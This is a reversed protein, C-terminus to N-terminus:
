HRTDQKYEEIGEWVDYAAFVVTLGKAALMLGRNVAASRTAQQAVDQARGIQRNLKAIKSSSIKRALQMSLADIQRNAAVILESQQTLREAAHDGVKDKVRGAAEKALNKSLDFAIVKADGAGAMEKGADKLIGYSLSVVGAATITATAAGAVVLGAPIVAVAVTSGLKIKALVDIARSLAQDNQQNIENATRFTTQLNALSRRRDADLHQLYAEFGAPSDSAKTIAATLLERCRRSRYTELATTDEDINAIGPEGTTAQALANMVVNSSFQEFKITTYLSAAQAYAVSNIFGTLRPLDVVVINAPAGVM